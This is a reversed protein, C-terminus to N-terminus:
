FSTARGDVHRKQHSIGVTEVEARVNVLLYRLADLLHQYPSDERQDYLEPSTKDPKVQSMCRIVEVCDSSVVLPMEPDALANQIRLCGDRISSNRSYPNLRARRLIDFESESTQVNKANGAPDCYSREPNLGLREDIAVIADRFEETTVNEPALEGVVFLQGKPSRQVWVCAPHRYGFDIGRWTKWGPVPDIKAVNRERTFREFFTGGPASFAQEPVAAHERLALRPEPSETVNLRYWEADRGPHSSWPYFVGHWRGIGQEHQEWIAHAVDGPGNGTTAGYLWQCASDLAALQEDPWDWFAFEDAFGMYAAKSRGARKTAKMSEFRSGNSFVMEETNDKVMTVPPKEQSQYMIRVRHLADIADSGSQSAILFLRNGWHEANFLMHALVEWTIGLQRAKLAFLRDWKNLEGLFDRQFSWLKFPILAGTVKDEIKLSEIFDAEEPRSTRRSEMEELLGSLRESLPESLNQM